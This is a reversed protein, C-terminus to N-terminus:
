KIGHAAGLEVRLDPYRRARSGSRLNRGSLHTALYGVKENQCATHNTETGTEGCCRARRRRDLRGASTNGFDFLSGLRGLDGILPFNPPSASKPYPTRTAKQSAPKAACRRSFPYCRAGGFEAVRSHQWALFVM